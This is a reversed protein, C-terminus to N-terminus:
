NLVWGMAKFLEIYWPKIWGLMLTSGVSAGLCEALGVYVRERNDQCNFFLLGTTLWCLQSVIGTVMQTYFWNHTVAYFDFSSICDCVLVLIFAILCAKYPITKVKEFSDQDRLLYKLDQEDM